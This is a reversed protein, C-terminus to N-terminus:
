SVLFYLGPQHDKSFERIYIEGNKIVKVKYIRDNGGDDFEM